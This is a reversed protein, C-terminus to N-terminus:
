SFPIEGSGIIYGILLYISAVILIILFVEWNKIKREETFFYKFGNKKNM